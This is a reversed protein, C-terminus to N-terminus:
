QKNSFSKGENLAVTKSLDPSAFHPFFYENNQSSTTVEAPVLKFEFDSM